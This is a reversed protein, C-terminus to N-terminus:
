KAITVRSYPTRSNLGFDLCVCFGRFSHKIFRCRLCKQPVNARFDRAPGSVKIKILLECNVLFFLM